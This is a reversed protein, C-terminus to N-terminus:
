RKRPLADYEEKSIEIRKGNPDAITIIAHPGEYRCSMSAAEWTPRDVNNLVREATSYKFELKARWKAQKIKPARSLNHGLDAIKVLKGGENEDARYIFDRYFERSDGEGRRTVSDVIERVNVGFETEIRALTVYGKSDEVTDHLIAAILLDEVTYKGLPPMQDQFPGSLMKHVRHFVEFCHVIHPMGDEDIQGTHARVALQIASELPTIM